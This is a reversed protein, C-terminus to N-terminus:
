HEIFWVVSNMKTPLLSVPLAPMILLVFRLLQLKPLPLLTLFRRFYEQVYGHSLNHQQLLLTGCVTNGSTCSIGKLYSLCYQGLMTHSLM